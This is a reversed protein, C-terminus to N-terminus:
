GPSAMHPSARVDGFGFPLNAAPELATHAVDDQAIGVAGVAM